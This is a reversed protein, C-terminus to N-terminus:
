RANTHESVLYLRARVAIGSAVPYCLANTTQCFLRFLVADLDPQLGVSVERGRGFGHSEDLLSVAWVNPDYPIRRITKGVALFTRGFGSMRKSSGKPVYVQPAQLRWEATQGTTEVSSITPISIEVSCSRSM